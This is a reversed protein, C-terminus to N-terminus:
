KVSLDSQVVWDFGDYQRPEETQVPQRNTKTNGEPGRSEPVIM